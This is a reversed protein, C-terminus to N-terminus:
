QITTTGNNAYGDRRKATRDAYKIKDNDNELYDIVEEYTQRRRLGDTIRSAKAM